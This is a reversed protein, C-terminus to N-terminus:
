LSYCVGTCTEWNKVSTRLMIFTYEISESKDQFYELLESRALSKNSQEDIIAYAKLARESNGKPHIKVLLTKACLKGRCSGNGCVETCKSSVDSFSCSEGGHQRAGNSDGQIHFPTCHGKSKCKLWQYKRQLTKGLTKWMFMFDM